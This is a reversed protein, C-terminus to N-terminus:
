CSRVQYYIINRKLIYCSMRDPFSVNKLLGRIFCIFDHASYGTSIYIITGDMKTDGKQLLSSSFEFRAGDPFCIRHMTLSNMLYIESRFMGPITFLSVFGRPVPLEWSIWLM